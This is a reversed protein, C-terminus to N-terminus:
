HCDRGTVLQEVEDAHRAITLVSRRIEEADCTSRPYTNGMVFHPTGDISEIAISGHPIAANIQLAREYHKQDAPGCVSYVKIVQEAIPEANCAQVIVKQSRNGAVPMTVCFRDSTGDIAAPLNALAEDLLTKLCRLNGYVAKVEALLETADDFRDAPKKAMCRHVVAVADRPADPCLEYLDPVSDMAHRVALDTFSRDTFPVQGALLYFYTVGM